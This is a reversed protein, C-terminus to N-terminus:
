KKLNQIRCETLYDLMKELDKRRMKAYNEVSDPRKGAEKMLQVIQEAMERKRREFFDVMRKVGRVIFGFLKFVKIVPQEM